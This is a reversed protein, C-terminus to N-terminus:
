CRCCPEANLQQTEITPPMLSLSQLIAAFSILWVTMYFHGGETLLGLLPYCHFIMSGVTSAADIPINGTPPIAPAPTSEDPDM